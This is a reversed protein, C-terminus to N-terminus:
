ELAEGSWGRLHWDHGAVCLAAVYGPGAPVERLSWRAAESGYPRTTLLANTDGIALSVDFQDLPLSLGEGNAKIYAEKRTWCRFFTEYREESNVTALQKQEHLSFYRRAIADVDLDQRVREVDVGLERSRSFALLALGGTHSLNFTVGSDAYQPGLSLKRKPSHRFTLKKPDADLYAALVTRLLGHTVVFEQRARVSLFRKARVQEDASLLRQWRDESVALTQLDLRWLQVDNESLTLGTALHFGPDSINM